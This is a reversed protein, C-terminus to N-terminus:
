SVIIFIVCATMGAAPRPVRKRGYVLATGLSNTGKSSLGANCMTTSSPIAEPAVVNLM